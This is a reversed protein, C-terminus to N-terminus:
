VLGVMTLDDVVVLGVCCKVMFADHVCGVALYISTSWESSLPWHSTSCLVRLM